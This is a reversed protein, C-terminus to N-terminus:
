NKQVETRKRFILLCTPLVFGAALRLVAFIGSKDTLAATNEPLTSLIVILPTYFYMYKRCNNACFIRGTVMSIIYINLASYMIFGIIWGVTFVSELRSMFSEYNIYQAIKYIPIFYSDSVTYPVTLTYLVTVTIMILSSVIFSSKAIKKFSTKKSAFPALFFLTVFDSFYSVFLWVSSFSRSGNGLVPFINSIDFNRLSSLALIALLGVTFPVTFSHARVIAKLGTHACLLAAGIFVSSIFTVPSEPLVTIKLSESVTRLFLAQNFVFFAVFLLIVVTKSIKGGFVETIDTRKKEFLCSLAFIIAGGVAITVLSVLIGASACHRALTHPYVLFMKVTMCNAVTLSLEKKSFFTSTEM